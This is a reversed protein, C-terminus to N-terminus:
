KSRRMLIYAFVRLVIQTFVLMFIHFWLGGKVGMTELIDDGIVPICDQSSTDTSASSSCPISRGEFEIICFASYAYRAFSIWSSYWTLANMNAFPVYFGGIIMLFLVITPVILLAIRLNPIILSFLVALSQANTISLYFVVIYKLFAVFSPRLNTIGYAVCAFAMPFLISYTLDALTKGVFYALVGYMKKARERRVLPREKLFMNLSTAVVANGQTIIIFFLLSQREYVKQSNDPIRFWLLATFGIFALVFLISALTLREGRNEKM